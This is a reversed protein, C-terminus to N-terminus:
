RREIPSNCALGIQREIYTKKVTVGLNPNGKIWVEPNKWDDDEDISYIAIFLRDDVSAGNLM